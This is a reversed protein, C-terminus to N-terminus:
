LGRFLRRVLVDYLVLSGVAIPLGLWWLGLLAAGTGLLLGLGLFFHLVRLLCWAHWLRLGRTLDKM